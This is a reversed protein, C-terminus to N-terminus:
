HLFVIICKEPGKTEQCQKVATTNTSTAKLGAPKVSLRGEVGGVRCGAGEHKESRAEGRDEQGRRPDQSRLQLQLLQDGWPHPANYGPRVGRGCVVPQLVAGM